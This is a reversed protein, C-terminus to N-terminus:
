KGITYVRRRFMILGALGSGLLLFTAPIPVVSVTDRTTIDVQPFDFTFLGENPDALDSYIVLSFTGLLSPSFNLTALLVDNGGSVGPFASGAVDTNPFMASDDNFGTGVTAKNLRFSSSHIVDFGFALVEDMDPVGVAVVDIDFPEGTLIESDFIDLKLSPIPSAFASFSSLVLSLGIAILITPLRNM